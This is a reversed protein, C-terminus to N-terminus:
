HVTRFFSVLFPSCFWRWSSVLLINGYLMYFIYISATGKLLHKGLTRTNRLVPRSESSAASSTVPISFYYITHLTHLCFILVDRLVHPQGLILSCAEQGCMSVSAPSPSRGHFPPKSDSRPPSLRTHPTRKARLYM